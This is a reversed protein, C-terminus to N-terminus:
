PELERLRRELREIQDAADRYRGCVLAPYGARAWLTADERMQAPSRDTSPANPDTPWTSPYVRFTVGLADLARIEEWTLPRGLRKREAEFAIAYVHAPAERGTPRFPKRSV